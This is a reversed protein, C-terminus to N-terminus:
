EEEWPSIGELLDLDLYIATIILLVYVLRPFSCYELVIPIIGFFVGLLLSKEISFPLSFDFILYCTRSVAFSCLCVVLIVESINLIVEGNDFFAIALCFLLYFSLLCNRIRDENREIMNVKM